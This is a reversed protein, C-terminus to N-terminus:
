VYICLKEEVLDEQQPSCQTSVTDTVYNWIFWESAFVPNVSMEFVYCRHDLSSLSLLSCQTSM